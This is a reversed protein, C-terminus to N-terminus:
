KLEAAKALRWADITSAIWCALLVWGSLTPLWGPDGQQAVAVTLADATLPLAGSEIRTLLDQARDLVNNFLITLAIASPVLFAFGRAIHQLYLQGAGPFVLGSLLAATMPKKM